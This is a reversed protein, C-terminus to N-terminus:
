VTEDVKRKKEAGSGGQRKLIEEEGPAPDRAGGGRMRKERRCDWKGSPM